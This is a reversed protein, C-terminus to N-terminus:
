DSLIFELEAITFIESLDIDIKDDSDNALFWDLGRKGRLTDAVGDDSITTDNLLWAGNLGDDGGDRLNTVRDAYDRDTRTWETMLADIALRNAQHAYTGGILIDDDDHGTVKDEGLGGIMLDRGDKGGILDDGDGGVLVDAGAGGRLSDNGPGGYIEATIPGLLSHVKIKDDGAGGYAVIRDIGPGFEGIEVDNIVVLVTDPQSGKQLHMVDPGDGGGLFLATRMPDVPDPLVAVDSM